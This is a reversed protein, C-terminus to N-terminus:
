PTGKALSLMDDYHGPPVPMFADVASFAKLAARGQEDHISLRLLAARVRALIAPELDGRAVIVDYPIRGAKGIVRLPGALGTNGVLLDSSVAAVDVVGDRLQQVAVPHSGAFSVVLDKQLDYGHERLWRAPLLYGSTSIPDVFALKKGRLDTVSEIPSDRRVVLYSGYTASGNAVTAAIPATQVGRQAVLAYAYTTLEAVDISGSALGTAVPEVAYAAPSVVTVDLGATDKMWQELAKAATKSIEASYYPPVVFVLPREQKLEPLPGADHRAPDFGGEYHALADPSLAADLKACGLLGALALAGLVTASLVRAVRARVPVSV